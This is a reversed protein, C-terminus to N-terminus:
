ARYLANIGEQRQATYLRSQQANNIPIIAAAFYDDEPPQTNRRLIFALAGLLLLGGRRRGGVIERRGGRRREVGRTVHSVAKPQGLVPWQMSSMLGQARFLQTWIRDLM